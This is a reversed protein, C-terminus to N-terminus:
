QTVAFRPVFCNELVGNVRDLNNHIGAVDHAFNGEDAALWAALRLPTKSHVDNIDVKLIELHEPHLPFSNRAYMKGAREVIKAILEFDTVQPWLKAREIKSNNM